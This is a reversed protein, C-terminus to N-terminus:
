FVSAHQVILFCIECSSSTCHDTAKCGETSGDTLSRKVLRESVGHYRLNKRKAICVFQMYLSNILNKFQWAM